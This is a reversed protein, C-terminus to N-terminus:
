RDHDVGTARLTSGIAGAAVVAVVLAAVALGHRPALGLISGLAAVSVAGGLQRATNLTGSALGAHGPPTHTLTVSTMAPMALSILGTLALGGVITAVDGRVAGIVVVLAGVVAAVFGIVMPRRPGFRAVAFGSFTAGCSVVVALPTAALGADLVGLGYSGQLVLLV